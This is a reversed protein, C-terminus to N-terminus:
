PTVAPSHVISLLHSAVSSGTGDNFSVCHDASLSDPSVRTKNESHIACYLLRGCPWLRILVPLCCCQYVAASSATQHASCACSTLVTSPRALSSHEKREYGPFLADSTGADAFALGRGLGSRIAPAPIVAATVPENTRVLSRLRAAQPCPRPQPNNPCLQHRTQRFCCCM